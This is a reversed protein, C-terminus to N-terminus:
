ARADTSTEGGANGGSFLQQGAKLMQEGGGAIGAQHGLLEPV